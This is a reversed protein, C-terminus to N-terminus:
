SAFVEATFIELKAGADRWSGPPLGAKECGADLFQDRDWGHEVPVQPLLLGRRPGRSLVVGHQGVRVAAPDAPQLAGLVSIEIALADVEPPTVPEFRPDDLAAQRAADWVTVWLARRPEVYGICGRLRRSLEHLTVFAGSAVALAPAGAPLPPVGADRRAAAERVAARAHSLLTARDSPGLM